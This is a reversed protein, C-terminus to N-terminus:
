IPQDRCSLRVATDQFQDLTDMDTHLVLALVPALAPVLVLVLVMVLVMVMVMVMALYKAMVRAMAKPITHGHGHGRSQGHSHATGSASSSQHQMVMSSENTSRPHPSLVEVQGPTHSGHHQSYSSYSSHSPPGYGHHQHPAFYSGQHTMPSRARSSSQPSPQSRPIEVHSVSSSKQHHSHHHPVQVPPMPVTPSTVRQLGHGGPGPSIPPPPSRYGSSAQSSGYYHQADYGSGLVGSASHASPPQQASHSPQHSHGYYGHSGHAAPPFSRGTVLSGAEMASTSSPDHFEHAHHPPEFEDETEIDEQRIDREDMLHQPQEQALDQEPQDEGEFSHERSQLDSDEESNGFWDEVAGHVEEDDNNLLNGINVRRPPTVPRPEQHNVETENDPYSTSIFYGSKPEVGPSDCPQQSTVSTPSTTGETQDGKDQDAHDDNPEPHAQPQDINDKSPLLPSALRELPIVGEAALKEANNIYQNRVQILTKSKMDKSIKDWDKGHVSLLRKFDAKELRSWYSSCNSKRATGEVNTPGSTPNDDAHSSSVLSPSGEDSPPDRSYRAKFSTTSQTPTEIPVISADNKHAVKKKKKKDTASEQEDVSNARESAIKPVNDKIIDQGTTKGPKRRGSPAANTDKTGTTTNTPPAVPASIASTVPTVSTVSTASINSPKIKKPKNKETGVGSVEKDEGEEGLAAPDLNNADDLASVGFKRKYNFCFNKCQDATKTGVAKAVAEFDRGYKKLAAICKTHEASTWRTILSPAPTVVTDAANEMNPHASDTAHQKALVPSVTSPLDEDVVPTEEPKPATKSSPLVVVPPGKETKPKKEEVVVDEASNKPNSAAMAASRTNPAKSGMKRRGPAPIVPTSVTSSPVPSAANSASDEIGPTGSQRCTVGSRARRRPGPETDVDGWSQSLDQLDRVEKSKALKRNAQGIDEILASGKHKKGPQGSPSSQQAAKEKRKGAPKRKRGRNSLMDKFGIEKKERYYFLVCQSATKNEIGAAIKGFQKPYNLYRKIFIDREEETWVDTVPGLRYYKIPDTVLHNRDYYHVKERIYPDLIMPPVTAATRSARLDPNRMDANELSQIIELLEAESRVADSNYAGRRNRTTFLVNESQVLDEERVNPPLPANAMKEKMKDLKEVKKTWAEWHQKYERKLQLEKEDLAAAKLAMNHLMASRLRKHTDINEQYCPYDEISEYIEPLDQEHYHIHHLHSPGSASHLRGYKKARSNNEAYIQDYLQPKRTQQSKRKFFPDDENILQQLEQRSFQQIIQLRKGMAAENDSINIDIHESEIAEPKADEVDKDPVLDVTGPIESDGDMLSAEEQFDAGVVAATDDDVDMIIDGAVSESDPREIDIPMDEDENASITISVATEAQHQYEKKLRHRQLLDGLFQIEGDIKNIETLIDAQNEFELAEKPASADEVTQVPSLGPSPLSTMSPSRAAKGHSMERNVVSGNTATHEAVVEVRASDETQPTGITIRAEQNITEPAGGSFNTDIDGNIVSSKVLKLSTLMDKTNRGIADSAVDCSQGHDVRTVRMKSNQPDNAASDSAENNTSGSAARKVSRVNNDSDDVRKPRSVVYQDKDDTGNLQHDLIDDAEMKVDESNRSQDELLLEADTSTSSSSPHSKNARDGQSQVGLVADLRGLVNPKKGDSCLEAGDPLGVIDHEQDSIHDSDRHIKSEQLGEKDGDALRIRDSGRTRERGGTDDDDDKRSERLSHSQSFSSSGIGTPKASNREAGFSLEETKSFPQRSKESSYELLDRDLEQVQITRSNSSRDREKERERNNHDSAPRTPISGDDSERIWMSRRDREREREREREVVERMDQELVERGSFSERGKADSGWLGRERLERERNDRERLERTSIGQERLDRDRPDRDRYDSDRSYLMDRERMDRERISIDRLDRPDRPPRPERMDRIDQRVDRGRYDRDREFDRPYHTPRGRWEDREMYRPPGLGIGVNPGM